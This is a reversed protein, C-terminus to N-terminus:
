YRRYHVTNYLPEVTHSKIHRKITYPRRLWNVLRLPKNKDDIYRYGVTWICEAIYVPSTNVISHASVNVIGFRWCLRIIWYFSIWKACVCIIGRLFKYKTGGDDHVPDSIWKRSIINMSLFTGMLDTPLNKFVIDILTITILFNISNRWVTSQGM